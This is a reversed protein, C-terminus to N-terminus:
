KSINFGYSRALRLAKQMDGGAEDAFYKVMDPTLKDSLIIKQSKKDVGLMDLMKKAEKKNVDKSQFGEQFLSKLEKVHEPDTKSFEMPNPAAQQQQQMLAQQQDQTPTAAGLPEQPQMPQPQQAPSMGLSEGITQQNPNRLDQQWQQQAMSPIAATGAQYEPNDLAESLMDRGSRAIVDADSKSYGRGQLVASINNLKAEEKDMKGKAVMRSQSYRLFDSLYNQPLRALAKSEKESYGQTKLAESITKEQEKKQKQKIKYAGYLGLGEVLTNGIQAGASQNTRPIVQIAM